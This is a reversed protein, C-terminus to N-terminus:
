FRKSEFDFAEGIPEYAKIEMFQESPQMKSKMTTPKLPWIRTTKFDKYINLSILAIKIFLFVWQVLDEKKVRKSKNVL